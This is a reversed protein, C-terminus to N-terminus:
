CVDFSVASCLFVFLRCCSVFRRSKACSVRQLDVASSALVTESSLRPRTTDSLTMAGSGVRGSTHDDASLRLDITLHAEHFTSALHLQPDSAYHSQGEGSSHLFSLGALLSTLEAQLHHHFLIKTM